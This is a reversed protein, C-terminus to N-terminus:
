HAWHMIDIDHANLHALSVFTGEKCTLKGGCECEGCMGIGCLTNLELSSFINAAAAGLSRALDMARKMLPIPGITYFSWCSCDEETLQRALVELVRGVVGQDSVPIFTAHRRIADGLLIQDESTVGYYVRVHKGEAALQEVLRPVVAIGTGGAVVAVNPVPVSPAPAGYVGRILLEEGERLQFLARTVLGKSKGADYPRKRVVFTLPDNLAISFPKEGVEPVWLFAYGSAPYDMRGDLELVRLDTAQEVIRKIRYPQYEAIRKKTLYSEATTQGTRADQKLAAFYAPMTQPPMRALVSGLGIVNAGAARMRRVDEGTAVGGMGIIPVATGVAQRIESIKELALDRIWIGSKGGARGLPNQLVPRGSHPERYVEPGVTNIAVLGDAGAAVAARAIEAINAVNPTLKPFLLAPTAARLARLYESVLEVDSGIGSGYGAHAHPCSFNLELLDAVEAFTQALRVFDDITNAALSVNLLARLPRAEQLARLEAHAQAMGPNRLGVANGFCGVEPEVIIPERNGATANVQFSKTTIVTVEPLHDDVWRILNPKTTFIGSVTAFQIEGALLQQRIAERTRRAMAM